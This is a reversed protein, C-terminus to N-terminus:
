PMQLMTSVPRGRAALEAGGRALTVQTQCCAMLRRIRERRLTASQSQSRMQQLISTMATRLTSPCSRPWCPAGTRSPPSTSTGSLFSLSPSGQQRQTIPPLWCPGAGQVWPHERTLPHLAAGWTAVCAVYPRSAITRCQQRSCFAVPLLSAVPNWSLPVPFPLLGAGCPALM